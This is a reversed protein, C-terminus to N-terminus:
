EPQRPDPVVGSRFWENLLSCRDMADPMATSAFVLFGTELDIVVWADAMRVSVFSNRM